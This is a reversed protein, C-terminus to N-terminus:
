FVCRLTAIPKVKQTLTKETDNDIAPFEEGLESTKGPSWLLFRVYGTLETEASTEAGLVACVFSTFPRMFHCNVFTELHHADCM